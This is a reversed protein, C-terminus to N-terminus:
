KSNKLCRQLPMVPGSTGPKDKARAMEETSIGLQNIPTTGVGDQYDALLLAGSCLADRRAADDEQALVACISTLFKEKSHPLESADRIAVGVPDQELIEAYDTIVKERM